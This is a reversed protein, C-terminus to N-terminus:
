ASSPMRSEEVDRPSPSTYLLCGQRRGPAVVEVVLAGGSAVLIWAVIAARAWGIAAQREILVGLLQQEVGVLNGGTPKQGQTSEADARVLLAQGVAQVGAALFDVPQEDLLQGATGDAFQWEVVAIAAHSPGIVALGQEVALQVAGM